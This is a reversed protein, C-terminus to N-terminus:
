VGNQGNGPKISLDKNIVNILILCEDNKINKLKSIAFSKLKEIRVCIDYLYSAFSYMYFRNNHLKKLAPNYIFDSFVACALCMMRICPSALM